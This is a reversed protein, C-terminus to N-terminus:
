EWENNLLYGWSLAINHFLDWDYEDLNTVDLYKMNLIEERDEYQESIIPDLGREQLEIIVEAITLDDINGMDEWNHRHHTSVTATIPDVNHKELDFFYTNTSNLTVMTDGLTTNNNLFFIKNELNKYNKTIYNKRKM